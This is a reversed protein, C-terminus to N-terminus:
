NASKIIRNYVNLPLENKMFAMLRILSVEAQQHVSAPIRNGVTPQIYERTKIKLTYNNSDYVISFSTGGFLSSDIKTHYNKSSPAYTYIAKLMRYVIVGRVFRSECDSLNKVHSFDAEVSYSPYRTLHSIVEELSLFPSFHLRGFENHADYIRQEEPSVRVPKEEVSQPKHSLLLPLALIPIIIAALVGVLISSGKKKALAGAIPIQAFYICLMIGIQWNTLPENM